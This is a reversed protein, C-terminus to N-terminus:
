ASNRHQKSATKIITRHHKTHTEMSNLHQKSTKENIKMPEGDTKCENGIQNEMANGNSKSQNQMSKCQGENYKYKHAM